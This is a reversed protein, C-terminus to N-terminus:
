SPILYKSFNLDFCLYKKGRILLLIASYLMVSYFFFNIFGVLENVPKSSLFLLKKIVRKLLTKM